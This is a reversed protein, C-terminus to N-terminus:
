HHTTPPPQLNAGRRWGMSFARRGVSCFSKCPLLHHSSSFGLEQLPFSIFGWGAEVAPCHLWLNSSRMRDHRCTSPKQELWWKSGQLYKQLLPLSGEEEALHPSLSAHVRSAAAVGRVVKTSICSTPSGLHRHRSIQSRGWFSMAVEGRPPTKSSWQFLPFSNEQEQWDELIM